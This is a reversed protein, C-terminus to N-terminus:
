WTTLRKFFCCTQGVPYRDFQDDLARGGDDPFFDIEKWTSVFQDGKTRSRSYLM